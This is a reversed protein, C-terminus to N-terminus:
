ASVPTCLPTSRLRGKCASSLAPNREPTREHARVHSLSGSFFRLIKSEYGEARATASTPTDDSFARM